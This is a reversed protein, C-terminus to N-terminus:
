RKLIGWMCLEEVTDNVIEFRIDPDKAGMPTLLIEEDTYISYEDTSNIDTDGWGNSVSEKVAAKFLSGTGKVALTNGIWRFEMADQLKKGRFDFLITTKTRLVEKIVVRKVVSNKTFDGSLEITLTHPTFERVSDEYFRYTFSAAFTNTSILFFLTCLLVSKIM